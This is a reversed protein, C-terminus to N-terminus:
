STSENTAVKGNSANTIRVQRRAEFMECERAFSAITVAFEEDDITAGAAQPLLKAIERLSEIPWAKTSEPPLNAIAFRVIDLSKKSLAFLVSDSATITAQRIQERLQSAEKEAKDKAQQIEQFESLPISVTAQM